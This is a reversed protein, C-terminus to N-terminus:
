VGQGQPQQEDSRREGWACYENEHTNTWLVGCYGYGEEKMEIPIPNTWRECKRCRVVPVADVPPADKLEDIAEPFQCDFCDGQCTGNNTGRGCEKEWKEILPIADIYRSM